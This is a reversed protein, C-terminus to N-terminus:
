KRFTDLDELTLFEGYSTKIVQIFPIKSYWTSDIGGARPDLSSDLVSIRSPRIAEGRRATRAMNM